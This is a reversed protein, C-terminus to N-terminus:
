YLYLYLWKCNYITCGSSSTSDLTLYGRQGKPKKTHGCHKEIHSCLANGKKIAKSNEEAEGFRRVDTKKKVDLTETFQYLPRRASPNKTYLYPKPTMPSKDTCGEPTSVMVAENM